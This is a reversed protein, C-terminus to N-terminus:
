IKSLIKLIDMELTEVPSEIIRDIEKEDRYFIFTPVYEIYLNDINATKSKKNRDVGIITINEYNFDLMDIIKLFAPVQKKSDICWSGLVITIKINETLAPVKSIIVEDVVYNHYYEYYIEKWYNSVLQNHSITDIALNDQAFCNTFVFIGLFTIKFM